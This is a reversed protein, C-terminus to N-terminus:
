ISTELKPSFVHVRKLLSLCKNLFMKKFLFLVRLMSTPAPSQHHTTGSNQTTSSVANNPTHSANRNYAILRKGFLRDSATQNPNLRDSTSTTTSTVLQLLKTSTNTLNGSPGSEETTISSVPKQLQGTSGPSFVSINRSSSTSM